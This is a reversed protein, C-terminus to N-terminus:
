AAVVWACERHCIQFIRSEVVHELQSFERKSVNATAFVVVSITLTSHWPFYIFRFECFYFFHVDLRLVLVFNNFMDYFMQDVWVDEGEGMKNTNVIAAWRFFIILCFLHQCFFLFLSLSRFLLEYRYCHSLLHVLFSLTSLCCYIRWFPRPIKICSIYKDNRSM